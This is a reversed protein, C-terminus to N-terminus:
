GADQATAAHYTQWFMHTRDQLGNSEIFQMAGDLAKATYTPDLELGEATLFEAALRSSSDTPLAYGKGLVGGVVTADSKAIDVPNMTPDQRRLLRAVRRALRTWRGATCYWRHSVVVGVLRTRLGALKCGALLGAATGLSGLAVYLYDPEPLLGADIQGKLELAANVHGLCALPSTGGPPIFYPRQGERLWAGLYRAAFRPVLTLRNAHILVAGAAAATALNRQVYEAPPQKVVVALTNLGLQRAHWATKAVHHSGTVGITALTRAGRRQADALIFELGRVKNGGCVRHSLDERKVFLSRLGHAEAFRRAETVPTPWRGLSLWAVRERLAPFM